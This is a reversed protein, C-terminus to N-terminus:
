LALRRIVYLKVYKAAAASYALLVLVLMQEHQAVGALEVVM